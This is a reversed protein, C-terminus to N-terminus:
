EQVRETEYMKELLFYTQLFINKRRDFNKRLRGHANKEEASLPCRVLRADCEYDYLIIADASFPAM